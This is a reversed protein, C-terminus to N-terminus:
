IVRIPMIWRFCQGPSDIFAKSDLVAMLLVDLVDDVEDDEEEPITVNLPKKLPISV